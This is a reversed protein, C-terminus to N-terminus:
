YGGQDDLWAARRTFFETEERLVPAQTTDPQYSGPIFNLHLALLRDRHAAVLLRLRSALCHDCRLWRNGYDILRRLFTDDMGLTCGAGRVVSPWRTARLRRRLEEIDAPDVAIRFPEIRMQRV